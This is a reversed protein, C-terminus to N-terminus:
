DESPGRKTAKRAAGAPKKAMAALLADFREKDALESQQEQQEAFEKLKGTKRAEDLSLRKRKPM